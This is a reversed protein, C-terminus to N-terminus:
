LPAPQPRRRRAPDNPRRFGFLIQPLDAAVVSADCRRFDGIIKEALYMPDCRSNGCARKTPASPVFQDRAQARREGARIRDEISDSVAVDVDHAYQVLPSIERRDKRFLFTIYSMDIRRITPM